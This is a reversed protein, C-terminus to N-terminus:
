ANGRVKDRHLANAAKLACELDRHRSWLKTQNGPERSALEWQKRGHRRLVWIDNYTDRYSNTWRDFSMVGYEAPLEEVNMRHLM